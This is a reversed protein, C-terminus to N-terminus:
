IDEIFFSNIEHHTTTAHSSNDGHKSNAQYVYSKTSLYKENTDSATGSSTGNDLSLIPDTNIEDYALTLLSKEECSTEHNKLHLKLSYNMKFGKGCIHCTYPREDTHSYSHLKLYDSRHFQRGCVTCM